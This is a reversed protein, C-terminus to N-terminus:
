ILGANRAYLVGAITKADIIQGSKIMDIIEDAEYEYIDLDETDDWDVDGPTLGKCLYIYLLENSYGCSPTITLLYEISEATYGTEEKLERLATAKPDEGPDLKGAPLELLVKELAKRFQGVLLIKGEDTIAVMASGGNHELVDRYSEGAVTEVKHKRIKFIPGEYVVKSEITKEEFSM